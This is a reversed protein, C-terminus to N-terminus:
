AQAPVHFLIHQVSGQQLGVSTVPIVGLSENPGTNHQESLVETSKNWLPLPQHRQM